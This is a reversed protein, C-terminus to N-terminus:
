QPATTKNFMYRAIKWDGDVKEFVFLERNAESVTEGTAHILTTGASSTTAFALEGEVVIEDISFAVNLQIQSFVFSYSGLINESGTASPAGSPMFIGDKTYLSKALEADSTNLAQQYTDLLSEIQEKNQKQMTNTQQTQNAHNDISTTDSGCSAVLTLLSFSWALHNMM